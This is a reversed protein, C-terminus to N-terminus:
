AALTNTRVFQLYNCNGHGFDHLYILDFEIQTGAAGNFRVQLRQEAM